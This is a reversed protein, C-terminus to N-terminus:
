ADDDTEPPNDFNVGELADPTPTVKAAIWLNFRRNLSKVTKAEIAHRQGKGAHIDESRLFKRVTRADTDFRLALEKPTLTAM